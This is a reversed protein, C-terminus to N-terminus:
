KNLHVILLRGDYQIDKETWQQNRLLRVHLQRQPPMNQYSGQRAGLTLTGSKENWAIDVKSSQGQEYRYTVGDDDYL